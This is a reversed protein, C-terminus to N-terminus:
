PFLVARYNNINVTPIAAGYKQNISKIMENAIIAYGRPNPHIGDLSFLNGSIFAPSYSVGNITLTATLQGNVVTPQISNFYANMDSIALNKGNAVEKIAANLEATRTKIAAVEDKDLVEADTLPNFPSFGHPGTVPSVVGIAAQTTLLIYDGTEAKRIDTPTPGTRIYVDAMPNIAQEAARVADVTITTFYPLATVDPITVVIGKANGATLTNIAQSYIGKFVAPDTMGSFPNTATSVGGNTAYTLVDNNGLWCSFFTHNRGGIFDLYSKNGVDAPQLLREYYPNVAGYIVQAAAFVSMGPVALNQLAPDTFKTLPKNGGLLPAEGPREASAPVFTLVPTGTASFGTLKLYGSGSAQSEPFLAQLFDGGGAQKFQTALISPYSNLQGERYVGNDQYGATLSNGVAIYKSFDLDGKTIAPAEIEPECSSLFAFAALLTLGTKTFYKKM